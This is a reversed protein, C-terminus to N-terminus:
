GLKRLVQQFPGPPAEEVGHHRLYVRLRCKEPRYYDNVDTVAFRM